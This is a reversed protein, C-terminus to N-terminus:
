ATPFNAGRVGSVEVDWPKNHSETVGETGVERKGGLGGEGEEGERREIGREGDVDDSVPGGGNAEPVRPPSPSRRETRETLPPPTQQVQQDLNQAQQLRSRATSPRTPRHLQKNNKNNNKNGAEGIIVGPLGQKGYDARRNALEEAPTIGQLQEVLFSEVDTPMRRLTRNILESVLPGIEIAMFLRDQRRALRQQHQQHQQQQHHHQEAASDGNNREFQQKFSGSEERRADEAGAEGLVGSTTGDGGQQQQQQQQKKKSLFHRLAAERIDEPRDAVLSLILPAMVPDVKACLYAHTDEIRKRQRPSVKPAPPSPSPGGCHNRAFSAAVPQQRTPRARRRKEREDRLHRAGALGSGGLEMTCLPTRAATTM